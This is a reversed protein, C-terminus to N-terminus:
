FEYYLNNRDHGQAQIFLVLDNVSAYFDPENNGYHYVWGYTLADDLLSIDIDQM